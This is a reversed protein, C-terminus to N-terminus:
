NLDLKNFTRIVALAGGIVFLGAVLMGIQNGDLKFGIIHIYSISTALAGISIAGVGLGISFLSEIGGMISGRNNEDASEQAITMALTLALAFAMGFPVALTLAVVIIPVLAMSIVIGGLVAIAAGFIYARGKRHVLQRVALLGIGMGAGWLSVLWGFIASSANLTESVYGIGVAFLVGGGFMAATIGYALGRITKNNWVAQIGKIFDERFSMNQHQAIRKRDVHFNMNAIMLASFLFTVADVFFALTEPQGDIRHSFPLFSPYLGSAGHIAGFIAGGIPLMIYSSALILGNATELSRKPAFQPISADRAPIFFLSIFEHVFAIAYIFWLSVFPVLLIIAARLIDTTVMITKRSMRDALVGGIPAAFMPPVLRLILIFAVSTANGTLAYIFAIFAFTALWDGLGSILQGVLLKRFDSAKLLGLTTNDM